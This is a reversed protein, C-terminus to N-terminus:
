PPTYKDNGRLGYARTTIFTIKDFLNKAMSKDHSQRYYQPIQTKHYGYM